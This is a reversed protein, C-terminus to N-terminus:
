STAASLALRSAAICAPIHCPAAFSREYYTGFTAAPMDRSGVDLNIAEIEKDNGINADSSGAAPLLRSPRCDRRIATNSSPILPANSDIGAADSM